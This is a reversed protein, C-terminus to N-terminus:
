ESDEEGDSLSAIKFRSNIEVAHQQDSQRMMNFATPATRLNPKTIARTKEKEELMRYRQFDHDSYFKASPLPETCLLRVERRYQVNGIFTFLVGFEFIGEQLPECRISIVSTQGPIFKKTLNTQLVSVSISKVEDQKLDVTCSKLNVPSMTLNDINFVFSTACGVSLCMICDGCPDSIVVGRPDFSPIEPVKQYKLEEERSARRIANVENRTRGFSKMATIQIEDAYEDWGKNATNNRKRFASSGGLFTNRSSDNSSTKFGPRPNADVDHVITKKSHTSRYTKESRNDAENVFSNFHKPHEKIIHNVDPGIQRLKVEHEFSKIHMTMKGPCYSNCLACYPIGLTVFVNQLHAKSSFHPALEDEDFIDLNCIQCL